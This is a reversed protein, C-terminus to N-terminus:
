SWCTTAYSTNSRCRDVLTESKQKEKGASPALEIAAETRRSCASDSSAAEAETLSLTGATSASCALSQSEIPLIVKM